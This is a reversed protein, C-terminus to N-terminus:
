SDKEIVCVQRDQVFPKSDVAKDSSVYLKGEFEKVDANPKL